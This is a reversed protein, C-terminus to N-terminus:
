IPIHCKDGGSDIEFMLQKRELSQELLVNAKLQADKQRQKADKWAQQLTRILEAAAIIQGESLASSLTTYEATRGKAEVTTWGGVPHPLVHVGPLQKTTKLMFGTGAPNLFTTVVATIM